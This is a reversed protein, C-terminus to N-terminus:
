GDDIEDFDLWDYPPSDLSSNTNISDLFEDFEQDWVVEDEEKFDPNLKEFYFDSIVVSPLDERCNSCFDEEQDMLVKKCEVCNGSAM